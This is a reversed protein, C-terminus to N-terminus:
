LWEVLLMDQAMYCNGMRRISLMINQGPIHYIDMPNDTNLM